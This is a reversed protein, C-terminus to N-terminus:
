ERVLIHSHIVGEIEDLLAPLKTSLAPSLRECYDFVAGVVSIIWGQPTAGYLEQAASLLGAPSVHHTFAGGGDQPELPECIVTGAQGGERADIFIVQDAKALGTVMEPVLQHSIQVQWDGHRQELWQAAVCGIGDDARLLNGYGIVLIM